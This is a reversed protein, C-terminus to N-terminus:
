LFSQNQSDSAIQWPIRNLRDLWAQKKEPDLCYAMNRKSWSYGYAQLLKKADEKEIQFMGSFEAINWIDRTYIAECVIHPRPMDDSDAKRRFCRYIFAIFSKTTMVYGYLELIEKIYPWFELWIQIAQDFGRGGTSPYGAEYIITDEISIKHTNLFDQITVDAIPVNWLFKENHLIYPLTHDTVTTFSCYRYYSSFTINGIFVDRSKLADILKADLSNVEISYKCLQNSGDFNLYQFNIKM